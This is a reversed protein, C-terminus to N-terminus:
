ASRSHPQNLCAVVDKPLDAFWHYNMQLARERAVLNDIRELQGRLKEGSSGYFQQSKVHATMAAHRMETWKGDHFLDRMLVLRRDQPALADFEHKQAELEAAYAKRAIPLVTTLVDLSAKKPNAFDALRATRYFASDNAGDALYSVASEVDALPLTDIHDAIRFLIATGIGPQNHRKGQTEIKRLPNFLYKVAFGRDREHEAIVDLFHAAARPNNRAHCLLPGLYHMELPSVRNQIAIVRFLKRELEEDPIGFYPQTDM